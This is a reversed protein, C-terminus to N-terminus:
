EDDEDRRKRSLILALGGSLALLSLASWMAASSDGTKPPTVPPKKSDGDAQKCCPNLCKGACICEDCPRLCLWCCDGIGLLGFGGLGLLGLGGLLAPLAPLLSAAAILPILPAAIVPPLLWIWPPLPDPDPTQQPKWQAYIRVTGDQGVIINDAETIPQTGASDLTWGDFVYGPRTPKPLDGGDGYKGGMTYERNPPVMVGGAYNADFIVLVKLGEPAWMVLSLQLRYYPIDEWDDAYVQEGLATDPDDEAPVYVGRTGYAWKWDLRFTRTDGADDLTGDFVLSALQVIDVGVWDDADDDMRDAGTGPTLLDDADVDWLRYRMPINAWAAVTLPAARGVDFIFNDSLDLTFEYDCDDVASELTFTYFGFSGPVVIRDAGQRMDLPNDWPLPKNTGPVVKGQYVSSLIDLDWSGNLKPIVTSAAFSDIARNTMAKNKNHEWFSGVPHPVDGPQAVYPPAQVVITAPSQLVPAQQASAAPAGAAAAPITQQTADVVSQSQANNRERLVVQGAAAQEVLRLRPAAVTTTLVAFGLVLTLATFLV